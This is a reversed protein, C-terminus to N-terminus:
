ALKELMAKLFLMNDRYQPLFPQDFDYALYRYAVILQEARQFNNEPVSRLLKGLEPLIRCEDFWFAEDEDSMNKRQWERATVSGLGFHHPQETCLYWKIRHEEPCPEATFPYLRCTHPRVSYITCRDDRLMIETHSKSVGSSNESVSGEETEEDMQIHINLSMAVEDKDIMVDSIQFMTSLYQKLYIATGHTGPFAVMSLYDLEQMKRLYRGATAKSVGWRQALEAYGILPSGTGNRMYVVPGVESGQVQTDNYVTNIWLDLM